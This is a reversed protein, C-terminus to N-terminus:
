FYYKIGMGAAFPNISLNTAESFGDLDATGLRSVTGKVQTWIYKFDINLAINKSFFIEVGGGVYFCPSEDMKLNAGPGYLHEATDPNSELHNFFYGLGSSFYPTLRSSVYPHFRGTLLVPIQTLEGANGSIGPTLASLEVDTKIYDASFEFSFYYDAIYTYNIGFADSDDPSMDVILGDVNFDDNNYMFYSARAGIASRNEFWKNNKAYSNAPIISILTFVVGIILYWGCYKKM